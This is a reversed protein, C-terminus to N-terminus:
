FEDGFGRPSDLDKSDTRKHSTPLLAALPSGVSLGHGAHRPSGVPTGGSRGFVASNLGRPSSPSGPSRPSGLSGVSAPSGMSNDPVVITLTPKSRSPENKEKEVLKFVEDRDLTGLRVRELIGHSKKLESLEEDSLGRVHPSGYVKSVGGKKNKANGEIHATYKLTMYMARFLFSEKFLPVIDTEIGKRVEVGAAKFMGRAYKIRGKADRYGQLKKLTSPTIGVALGRDGRDLGYYSFINQALRVLQSHTIAVIGKNVHGGSKGVEIDEMM